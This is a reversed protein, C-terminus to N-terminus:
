VMFPRTKRYTKVFLGEMEAGIVRLNISLSVM